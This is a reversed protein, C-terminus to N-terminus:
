LETILNTLSFMCLLYSKLINKKIRKTKVGNEAM